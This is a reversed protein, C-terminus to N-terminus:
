KGDGIVALANKAVLSVQNIRSRPPQYTALQVRYAIARACETESLLALENVVVEPKDAVLGYRIRMFLYGDSPAVEMFDVWELAQGALTPETAAANLETALLTRLRHAFKRRTPRDLTYYTARSAARFWVLDTVEAVMM